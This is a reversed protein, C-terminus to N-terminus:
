RWREFRRVFYDANERIYDEAKGMAENSAQPRWHAVREVQEGTPDYLDLHLGSREVERYAPGDADHDFRAVARWTRGDWQELQVLFVVPSGGIATYAVHLGTSEPLEDADEPYVFWEREYAPM